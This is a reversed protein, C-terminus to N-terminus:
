FSKKAVKKHNENILMIAASGYWPTMEAVMMGSRIVPDTEVLKQAEVVTTVAFIFIGRYSRDNEGFPGALVLKGEDALRKINAMHGAFIGEREAKITIDADRPGTKLICFVYNRMGHEDAGVKTALRADYVTKKEGKQQASVACTFALVIAVLILAQKM